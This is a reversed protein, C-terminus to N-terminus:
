QGNPTRTPAPKVDWWMKTLFNNPQLSGEDYNPNTAPESAPYKMRRFIQGDTETNPLAPNQGNVFTPMGTRRWNAYSEYHNMFTALWYQTAIKEETVTGLTAIYANVAADDAVFSEDHLAYRAIDERIGAEFHAQATGPVNGLGRMVAEALLLHVEGATMVVYPEDLDLLKTNHRSFTLMYDLSADDPLGLYARLREDNMGKPIGRQALPDANATGDEVETWEGIGGSIWMLRPDDDSVDNPDTGKLQDILAKGLVNGHGGDSPDMARSYGNQNNWINPGTAMPVWANDEASTILGGAIAKNIYEVATAQDVEAIRMALRLMLSYALKRWKELDGNYFLDQDGLDDPGPNALAQAAQDLEWLMGGRVGGEDIGEKTYIEQVPDYSPNFIGEIGRNAQFYPVNGYLDVMRHMAIVYTIRAVNYTNTMDPDTGEPGTQRIVEALQKLANEYVYDFYSANHSPFDTLTYGASYGWGGLHQILNGCHIINARWNVYRNECSQLQGFTLNFRWDIENSANPNINLEVLEETDCAVIPILMIAVVSIILKNFLKM